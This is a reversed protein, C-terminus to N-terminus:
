RGYSAERSICSWFRGPNCRPETTPEGSERLSPSPTTSGDTRDQGAPRGDQGQLSSSRALGRPGLRAEEDEVGDLM